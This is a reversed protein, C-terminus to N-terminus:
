IKIEEVLLLRVFRDLKYNKILQQTPKFVDYPCIWISKQLQQFGLYHLSRRLLFRERNKTKPIDYMLMIWQDDNRKRKNVFKYKIKLVKEEGEKTLLIGKNESIKIYGRRKLYNIFQGFQKRDKKKKMNRWFSQDTVIQNFTKIKFIDMVDSIKESTNYIGWLFQETFRIKM